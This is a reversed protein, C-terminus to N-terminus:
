KLTPYSIRTLRDFHQLVKAKVNFLETFNKLTQNEFFADKFTVALHFISGLPAMSNAKELVIKCGAATTIDDTTVNIHVGRQKWM